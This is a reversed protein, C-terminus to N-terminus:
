LLLCSAAIVVRGSESIVRVVAGLLAPIACVRFYVVGLCRVTHQIDQSVATAFAVCAFFSDVSSGGGVAPWTSAWMPGFFLIGRNKVHFISCLGRSRVYESASSKRM